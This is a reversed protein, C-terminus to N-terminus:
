PQLNWGLTRLDFTEVTNPYKQEFKSTFLKPVNLKVCINKDDLSCCFLALQRYPLFTVLQSERDVFVLKNVRYLGPSFDSFHLDFAYENFPTAEHHRGKVSYKTKNYIFDQGWIQMRKDTVREALEGTTSFFMAEFILEDHTGIIASPDGAVCRHNFQTDWPMQSTDQEGYMESTTLYEYYHAVLSPPIANKRTLKELTTKLDERAQQRRTITTPWEM